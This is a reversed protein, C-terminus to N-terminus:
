ELEQDFENAPRILQQPAIVIGDEKVQVGRQTADRDRVYLREGLKYSLSREGRTLHQTQHLLISLIESRKSSLLLYDYQDQVHIIFLDASHRSLSVSAIDLIPIIRRVPRHRGSWLCLVHRTSIVLIRQQYKNHRDVRKVYDSFLIEADGLSYVQSLMKTDNKMRLYDGKWTATLLAGFEASLAGAASSEALRRALHANHFEAARLASAHGNSDFGVNALQQQLYQVQEAMASKEKEKDHMSTSLSALVDRHAQQQYNLQIQHREAERKLEAQLAATRETTATQQALLQHLRQRYHAALYKHMLAQLKQSPTLHGRARARDYVGEQRQKAHLLRSVDDLRRQLQERDAREALASQSERTLLAQLQEILARSTRLDSEYSSLLARDEERERRLEKADSSLDSMKQLIADRTKSKWNQLDRLQQALQEKDRLADRLEEHLRALESQMDASLNSERELVADRSEYASMTPVNSQINTTGGSRRIEDVKDQQRQVLEQLRTIQAVLSSFRERNAAGIRILASALEDEDVDVPNSDLTAPRQQQEMADMLQAVTLKLAHVELEMERERADRSPRPATRTLTHSMSRRATSPPPPTKPQGGDLLGRSAKGFTWAPGRLPQVDDGSTLADLRSRRMSSELDQSTSPSPSASTPRTRNGHSPSPSRQTNRFLANLMTAGVDHGMLGTIYDRSRVAAPRPRRAAPNADVEAGANRKPSTQRSRSRTRGRRADFIGHNRLFPLDANLDVYYLDSPYFDGAYSPRSSRLAAQRQQEAKMRAIADVRKRSAKVERAREAQRDTFHVSRDAMTSQNDGGNRRREREEREEREEAQHKAQLLAHYKAAMEEVFPLAWAPYVDVMGDDHVSVSGGMETQGHDSMRARTLFRADFDAILRAVAALKSSLDASSLHSLEQSLSAPVPSTSPASSSSFVSPSSASLLSTRQPTTTTSSASASPM